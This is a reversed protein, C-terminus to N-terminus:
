DNLVFKGVLESMSVAQAALEESTASSEEATASNSQIVESIQDVGSEAQEMAVAQENSITSLDKSTNAIVKIGKVVEEISAAAREAAKNGEEIEQLSGEILQRTDVASQASQEALNRIQDAVVAFGKGAEGARAAEIAANLSLLNTQSAIDEIEEIINEIKESTQSIREMASVMAKMEERSHDAEEAYKEAQRYSEQVHEATTNVGDTINAITAQIEEVSAAQDTAGEALAQSAEALNGAGISVQKAAEDIHHLTENMQRNMKQMADKLLTFDGVYKEEIKTETAYNGDAMASLLEGADSFILKLNQAMQEAEEVMDAIEDKNKVEPFPSSLDGEAFTKLRESLANLADSIDKATIAGFKVALLISIIIVAIIVFILIIKLVNLSDSLNDGEDVNLDMLKGLDAYIQDYLPTLENAAKLQAETSKATDTTNGLSIIESDLEWYKELAAAADEYATKEEDTVVTEMVIEMYGQFSEKKKDHTEIANAIVKSDTYGIIARTASRSDAFTVMAKGIDGQAFGYNTLAHAYQNAIVTMAIVGVIAAISTIAAVVVFGVTLRKKIRMEKVSKSFKSM